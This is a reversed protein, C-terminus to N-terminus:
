LSSQTQHKVMKIFDEKKMDLNNKFTKRYPNLGKSLYISTFKNLNINTASQDYIVLYNSSYTQYPIQIEVGKLVSSHYDEKKEENFDSM